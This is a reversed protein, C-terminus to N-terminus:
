RSSPCTSAVDACHAATLVKTPAIVSGGCHLRKKRFIAVAFPWQAPDAPGGGVISSGARPCCGVALAGHPATAAGALALSALLTRNRRSLGITRRAGVDAETLGLEHPYRQAYEDRKDLVNDVYDLTEPFQIEDVGLDGGGGPAVNTEGANYAALAAVM